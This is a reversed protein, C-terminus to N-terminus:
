YSTVPFSIHVEMQHHRTMDASTYSKFLLTQTANLRKTRCLTLWFYSQLLFGVISILLQAVQTDFVGRYTDTNTRKASTRVSAKLMWARSLFLKVDETVQIQKTRNGSDKLWFLLLWIWMQLTNRKQTQTEVQSKLNFLLPKTM